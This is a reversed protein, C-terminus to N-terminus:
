DDRPRRTRSAAPARGIRTGVARRYLQIYGIPAGDLEVICRKEGGNDLYHERARAEDHLNDRGGYYQLVRPDSLWKAMLPIDAETLNRVHLPGADFQM